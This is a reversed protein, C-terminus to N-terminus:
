EEPTENRPKERQDKQESGQPKAKVPLVKRHHDKKEAQRDGNAVQSADDASGEPIQFSPL